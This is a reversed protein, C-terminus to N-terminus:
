GCTLAAPASLPTATRCSGKGDDAVTLAVHGNLRSLSIKIAAAHKAASSVTRQATYYLQTALEFNPVRIPIEYVFTCPAGYLGATRTTLTELAVMLGNEHPQVPMIVQVVCPACGRCSGQVLAYLEAAQAAPADSRESLAKALM